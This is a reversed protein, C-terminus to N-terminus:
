VAATREGEFRVSVVKSIGPEEQTVGFIAGARGMTLKNHTIVLFQSRGAFTGLMKLFRNVNHDDLPADIEDLLCFPSPRVLYTAFMLAIATMNQEGGSLLTISSNKKGPPQVMIEVGSSLPSEPNSLSLTARGGNFLTQFIETFNVQIREFTDRFLLESKEDIQALIDLIDEKADQIDREQKMLETYAEEARKHEEIALANFQGLAQIDGKLRRYEAEEEEKKRARPKCETELEKVSLQYDNYLEEELSSIALAINGATRELEGLEPLIREMAETERRTNEREKLAEARLKEIKKKLTEIAGTQEQAQKNTRATEDRLKKEESAIGDFETQLLQADEAFFRLRNEAEELQSTISARAEISSQARARFDRIQLEMEIKRNKEKELSAIDVSRSTKLKALSGILEERRRKLADLKRDLDEKRALIKQFLITRIEKDITEFEHFAKETKEPALGKLLALAGKQDGKELATQIREATERAAVLLAVITDRLRTRAGEKQEIDKKRTELEEIVEVTAKKLEEVLIGQEKELREIEASNEEEKQVSLAIREETEAVKRGLADAGGALSKIEVDLDLELQTSAQLRNRIEDRLKEESKRRGELSQLKKTREGREHELRALNEKLSELRSLGQHFERDMRHMSEMQTRSEEEIQEIRVERERIKAFTDERRKTLGTLKEETRTRRGELDVHAIYRLNKDHKDVHEKLKLYERTKRAQRELHEMEEKRAKLIDQLRLLNQETDHLRAMTEEREAKFRSIGAAEDFLLRREEPSAKLIESMRGQEMISYASKGIGTDMFLKELERRTCRKGNIFYESNSNLFLRRGVSIEDQDVPLRRDKNDFHIEVEAMGAPRRNESGLFVVDEMSKGRLGKASKEGLVWRVADVINSKGCGNPGVIATIGASTEVITEDAFSKFGVMRIKKLQM